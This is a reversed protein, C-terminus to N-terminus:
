NNKYIRPVRGGIECLIEYPITELHKATEEIHKNDKLIEVKDYLHVKENIEVFLMDMCVNGVIKYKNNNIYVYRGTNKRIIGDAYGVPIVGIKTDEEAKFIGIYGVVEGKELNHIQVVESILKVPSELEIKESFGYMIIGLRCGNAEIPKKYNTLAESASIHIIPVKSIDIEKLLNEFLEIQKNYDTEKSANYIHTFIGEVDINNNICKDYLGKLNKNIGLRNMGTNIKIHAKLGHLNQDLIEELCDESHITITINYEIAEKIHERNIHGLVLIPISKFKKRIAIAEELTAVALYNCGADIIAKTVALSENDLGYCNAKVVGFYYKYSPYNKIVIKVNNKIKEIDVELYTRRSFNMSVGAQMKTCTSPSDDIMIDIKEEKCVKLKNHEKWFYKDFTLNNEKFKNAVINIMEETETGRTSIIILKHGMKQLRHIVEIAGPMINSEKSLRLFYKDKFKEKEDTTWDYQDQIFYTDNVKGNGRCEEIDFIESMALLGKEWDLLVADVDIGINM